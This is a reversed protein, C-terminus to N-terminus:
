RQRMADLSGHISETSLGHRDMMRGIAISDGERKNEMKDM